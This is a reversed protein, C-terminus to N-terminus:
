QESRDMTTRRTSCKSLSNSGCSCMTLMESSRMKIDPGNFTLKHRVYEIIDEDHESQADVALEDVKIMRIQPYHRSALCVNLGNELAIASQTLFELFTVISQVEEDLCEDLADVLLFTPSSGVEAHIVAFLKEIRRSAM